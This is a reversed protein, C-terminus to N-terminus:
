GDIHWERGTAQGRTDSRDADPRSRGPRGAFGERSTSAAASSGLSTNLRRAFDALDAMRHGSAVDAHRSRLEPGFGRGGVIVSAKVSAAAERIAAFEEDFADPERITSVSLCVLGPRKPRIANALSRLPLDVGLNCVDWGSERLVLEALLTALVYPDGGPAAVIALPRPTPGTGPCAGILSMLVSAIVHTALHEQYVDVAGEQWGHGIRQMVPGVLGDALGVAGGTEHVTRILQRVQGARDHGQRLLHYLRDCLAQDISAASTASPRPSQAQLLGPDRGLERAMRIAESRPILRHNGVTRRADIVGTDVWRKVTSVSLGLAQAVIRTKLNENSADM